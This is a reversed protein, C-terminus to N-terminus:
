EKDWQRAMPQNNARMFDMYSTLIRNGPLGQKELGAAWEKAINPMEKSWALRDADSLPVVKGGAERYRAPATAGITMVYGGLHQGFATAKEQLVKKVEPPLKKWVDANVTMAYATAGGLRAQLMNPAVEYMKQNVAAEGWMLVGDVVGTKTANYFEALNSVVGVAGAAQVWRLNLGIGGIKMGKLYNKGAIPKSSLILYDDGVGSAALYVQGQKAWAAQM